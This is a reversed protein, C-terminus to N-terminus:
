CRVLQFWNFAVSFGLMWKKKKTAFPQFNNRPMTRFFILSSLSTNASFFLINEILDSKFNGDSDIVGITFHHVKGKEIVEFRFHRKVKEREKYDIVAIGPARQVHGKKARLRRTVKANSTYKKKKKKLLWVSKFYTFLFIIQQLSQHAVRAM